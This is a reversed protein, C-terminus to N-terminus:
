IVLPQNIDMNMGVSLQPVQEYRSQRLAM